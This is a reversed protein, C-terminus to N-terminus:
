DDGITLEAVNSEIEHSTMSRKAFLYRRNMSHYECSTRCALKHHQILDDMNFDGINFDGMNFDDM